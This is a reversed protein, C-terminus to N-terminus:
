PARVTEDGELTIRCHAPVPNKRIPQYSMTRVLAFANVPIQPWASRIRSMAALM